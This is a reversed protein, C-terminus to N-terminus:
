ILRTRNIENPKTFMERLVREKYSATVALM